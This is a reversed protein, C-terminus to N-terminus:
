SLEPAAVKQQFRARVEPIIHRSMDPSKNSAETIKGLAEAMARIHVPTVGCCGGIFHIGSDRAQRAFEAMIDRSVQHRELSLPFDPWTEFPGEERSCHYGLPQCGVPCGVAMMDRAASLAKDPGYACNIGVVDAGTDRLRTACEAPSFGDASGGPGINMTLVTFCQLAKAVKLATLAEELWMFTEGIVLDVGEELQPTLHNQMLRELSAGRLGERFSPTPSLGGAVLRTKGAANRALAVAERNLRDWHRSKDQSGYFCLAQILEAGCRAFDRHM